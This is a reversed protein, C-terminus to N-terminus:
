PAAIEPSVEAPRPEARVIQQPIGIQIRNEQLALYVRRNFERGVAYQQLPVTVIWVRIAVGAHSLSEVGLVEPAEVILPKWKRDL